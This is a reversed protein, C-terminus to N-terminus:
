PLTVPKIQDLLAIFEERDFALGTLTDHVMIAHDSLWMIGPQQPELSNRLQQRFPEPLGLHRM